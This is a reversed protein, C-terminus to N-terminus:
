KWSFLKSLDSRTSSMLNKEQEEANQKFGHTIFFLSSGVVAGLVLFNNGMFNNEKLAFYSIVALLISTRCLVL